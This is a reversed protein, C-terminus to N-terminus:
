CSIPESLESAIGVLGIIGVQIAEENRRLELALVVGRAPGGVANLRIAHLHVRDSAARRIVRCRGRPLLM